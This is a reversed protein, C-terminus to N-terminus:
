DFHKTPWFNLTIVVHDRSGENQCKFFSAFPIKSMCRLRHFESSPTPSSNQCPFKLSIKGLSYCEGSLYQPDSWYGRCGLRQLAQLHQCRPRTAGGGRIGGGFRVSRLGAVCHLKVAAPPAEVLIDESSCLLVIPTTRSRGVACSSFGTPSIIAPLCFYHRDEM